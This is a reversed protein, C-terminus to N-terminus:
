DNILINFYTKLYVEVTSIILAIVDDGHGILKDSSAVEHQLPCKDAVLPVSDVTDQYWHYKIQYRM